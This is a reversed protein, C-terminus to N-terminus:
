ETKCYLDNKEQFIQALSEEINNVEKKAQVLISDGKKEFVPEPCLEPKIKEGYDDFKDFNWADVLCVDCLAEALKM